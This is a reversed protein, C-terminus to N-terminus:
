DVNTIDDSVQPDVRLSAVGGGGLCDGIVFNLARIGPLEYRHSCWLSDDPTLFCNWLLLKYMYTNALYCALAPM